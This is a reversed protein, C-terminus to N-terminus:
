TRAEFAVKRNRFIRGVSNVNFTKWSVSSLSFYRVDKAREFAELLKTEDRSIGFITKSNMKCKSVKLICLLSGHDDVSKLTISKMFIVDNAERERICDGIILM